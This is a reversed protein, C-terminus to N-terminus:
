EVFTNKIKALLVAGDEREVGLRTFLKILLAEM